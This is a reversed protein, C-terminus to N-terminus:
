TGAPAEGRPAAAVSELVRDLEALRYPKGLRGAFGAQALEDHDDRSFGSCLVAKVAPDLARLERLCDIGRLRPMEMDVLVIDIRARERAFTEVGERGDVAELVTWGLDELM